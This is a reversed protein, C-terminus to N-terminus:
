YNLIHSQHQSARSPVAALFSALWSKKAQESANVRAEREESMEELDTKGQVLDKYVERWECELM